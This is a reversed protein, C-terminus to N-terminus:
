PKRTGCGCTGVYQPNSKGCGPCKWMNYRESESKSRDKMNTKGCISCNARNSNITGCNTCTWVTSTKEPIISTKEPIEENLMKANIIKQVNIAQDFSRAKIIYPLGNSYITIINNTRDVREIEDYRFSFNVKSFSMESNTARGTVMNEYVNCKIDSNLGLIIFDIIIDICSTITLVIGVVRLVESVEREKSHYYYDLYSYSGSRSNSAIFIIGVILAIVGLIILVIQASPNYQASVIFKGPNDNRKTNPPPSFRSVPEPPPQVPPQVQRVTEAVERGCKSCFKSNDDIPKGCYKCFM